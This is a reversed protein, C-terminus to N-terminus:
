KAATSGRQIVVHHNAFILHPASLKADPRQVRVVACRSRTPLAVGVNYLCTSVYQCASDVWHGIAM